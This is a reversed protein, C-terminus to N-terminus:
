RLFVDIQARSSPGGNSTSIRSEAVGNDTLWAKVADAREQALINTRPTDAGFSYGRVEIDKDPNDNVLQLLADMGQTDDATLTSEGSEFLTGLYLPERPMTVETETETETIETGSPTEEVSLTDEDEEEVVGREAGVEGGVAAGSPAAKKEPKKAEKKKEPPCEAKGEEEKKEGGEAGVVGGSVEPPQPEEMVPPPAPEAPPPPALGLEEETPGKYEPERYGQEAGVETETVTVEDVDRHRNKLLGYALAGVAVIGLAPVVWKLSSKEETVVEKDRRLPESSHFVRQGVAGGAAGAAAARGWGLRESIGAPLAKEVIPRQANLFSMLGGADLGERRKHRALTALTIPALLKMLTGTGAEGLGTAPALSGLAGTLGGGFVGSLMGTGSRMVETTNASYFGPVDDLIRDDVHDLHRSIEEAGERTSGKQILGGVLVPLAKNIASHTTGSSQGLLSAIKSVSAEGLHGQVMELLNGAM